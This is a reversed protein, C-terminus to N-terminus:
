LDGGRLYFLRERLFNWAVHNGCPEPLVLLQGFVRVTFDVTTSNSLVELLISSLGNVPRSM